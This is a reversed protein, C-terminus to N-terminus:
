IATMRLSVNGRASVVYDQLLEDLDLGSVDIDTTEATEYAYDDFTESKKRASAAAKRAANYGYAEALLIVALKVQEPIEPYAEAGGADTQDFRNHTLSIVKAEARSIDMAIKADARSQVEAHDSYERVESPAAWPRSAM